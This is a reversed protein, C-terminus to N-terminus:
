FPLKIEERRACFYANEPIALLCVFILIVQRTVPVPCFGLYLFAIVSVASSLVLPYVEVRTTDRKFLYIRSFFLCLVVALGLWFFPGLQQSFLAFLGTDTQSKGGDGFLALLSEGVTAPFLNLATIFSLSFASLTILFSRYSFLGFLMLALILANWLQVSGIFSLSAFSVLFLLPFLAMKGGWRMSRFLGAALPFILVLFVGTEERASVVLISELDLGRLLPIAYPQALVFDLCLLGACFLAGLVFCFLLRRLSAITRILCSILFYLFFLQFVLAAKGVFFLLALCLLVLGQTFGLSISRKGIACKCLFSLLTLFILVTLSASPILFFLLGILYLGAEPLSFVFLVLATLLLFVLVKGPSFVLSFLAFVIGAFIMPYTSDHKRGTPLRWAEVGFLPRLVFRFLFSKKVANEVDGRAFACLVAIFIYCVGFLLNEEGASFFSLTRSLFYFLIQLFGGTFFLLGFSRVRTSFLNRYFASLRTLFFSQERMKAMANQFQQRYSLLFYSKAKEPKESRARAFSSDPYFRFTRGLGYLFRSFYGGRGKGEM